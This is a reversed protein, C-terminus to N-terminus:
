DHGARKSGMSQLGGRDMLNDRCSPQLSNGHGEGPHRRSRPILGTDRIESTPPNNVVLAVQSARHSPLNFFLLYTKYKGEQPLLFRKM